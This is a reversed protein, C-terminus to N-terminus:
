AVWLHAAFALSLAALQPLCAVPIAIRLWGFGRRRVLEAAAVYGPFWTLAYRPASTLMTSCVLVAVSLAVYTAEPWRRWRALLAVLAIGGLVALLDAWRSVVLDPAHASRIAAWGASLGEWPWAAHRVWGTTQADQWARVSGTRWALYGFFALVVLGPAALALVDVRPRRREDRRLQEVYMVALAAAVFLGNVRIAATGAALAGAWWWRRRSAALWAGLALALFLSETYVASLFVGFPAVALFVVADRGTGPTRLEAVRWLLVAAVSGAVLSILLGAVAVSGGTLPSLLRMLLPYGPFFAQDCCPLGPPLYGREAIRVYHWTDWWTLRELLWRGADHGRLATDFRLLYAALVVFAALSVRSAAWWGALTLDRRWTM